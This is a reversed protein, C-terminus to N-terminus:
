RITTPGLPLRWGALSTDNRRVMLAVAMSHVAPSDFGSKRTAPWTDDRQVLRGLLRDDIRVFCLRGPHLRVMTAQTHALRRQRQVVPRLQLHPLQVRRCPTHSRASGQGVQLNCAGTDLRARPGYSLGSPVQRAQMGLSWPSIRVGVGLFPCSARLTAHRGTGGCPRTQLRIMLWACTKM